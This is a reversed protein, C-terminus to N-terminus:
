SESSWKKTERADKKTFKPKAADEGGKGEVLTKTDETAKQAGASMYKDLLSQKKKKLLIEEIEENTPVHVYARAMEDAELKLLRKRETLEEITLLTSGSQKKRWQFCFFDIM